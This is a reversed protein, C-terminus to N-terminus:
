SRGLKGRSRQSGQPISRKLEVRDFAEGRWVAVGAGAMGPDHLDGPGGAPNRGRISSREALESSQVLYLSVRRDGGGGAGSVAVHSIASTSGSTSDPVRDVWGGTGSIASHASDGGFSRD